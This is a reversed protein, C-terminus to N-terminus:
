IEKKNSLCDWLYMIADEAMEVNEYDFEIPKFAYETDVFVLCGIRYIRRIDKVRIIEQNIFVFEM